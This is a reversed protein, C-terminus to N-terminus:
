TLSRWAKPVVSGLMLDHLHHQALDGLVDMDPAEEGHMGGPAEILAILRLLFHRHGLDMHGVRQMLAASM